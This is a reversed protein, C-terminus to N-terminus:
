AAARRGNPAENSPTMLSSIELVRLLLNRCSETWNPWRFGDASQVGPLTGRQRHEAVLDALASADSSPFYAAFAGGVERHVPLDSALVPCGKSLAEVIPLNFGEAFSATVLGAAHRYCYDLESDNMDKFWLLKNGFQPHHRLRDMLDACDWGYNGVIALRVDVGSSWLRDFADLVLAHNKRPSIMGVMLYTNTQSTSTSSARSAPISCATSLVPYHLSQGAGAIAFATKLEDRVVGERVAGDLEAGLKFSGSRLTARPAGAPRRARDVSDIDDLVSNSIGIIFDAVVRAKDWWHGYLVHTPQGVVQPFQLPILDYVVLGVLAGHAQAERVDDWPFGADWSSDILLLVDGPQFRVGARSRRRVPLMARYRVRHLFHKLTRAHDVFNAAVLWEKLKARLRRGFTGSDDLPSSTVCPPGLRDIAVFGSNLSFAVGQCAVGLEPGVQRSKNVMNRVVRPIGTNAGLSSTFTCDFFVRRIGPQRMEPVRKGNTRIM